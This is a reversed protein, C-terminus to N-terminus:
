KLRVNNKKTEIARAEAGVSAAPHSVAVAVPVWVAIVRAKVTVLPDFRQRTTATPFPFERVTELAVQPPTARLEPTTM